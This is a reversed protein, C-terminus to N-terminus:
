FIIKLAEIEHRNRNINGKLFIRGTEPPVGKSAERKQKEAKTKKKKEKEETKKKKSDENQLSTSPRM